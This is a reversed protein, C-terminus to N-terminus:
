GKLGFELRKNLNKERERKGMHKRESMDQNQDTESHFADTKIVPVTKLFTTSAILHTKTKNQAAHRTKIPKLPYIM